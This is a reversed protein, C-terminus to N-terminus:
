QFRFNMLFGSLFGNEDSTMQPAELRFKMVKFLHCNQTLHGHVSIFPHTFPHIHKHRQSMIYTTYECTAM